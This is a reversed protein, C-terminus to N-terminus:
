AGQVTPADASRKVALGSSIMNGVVRRITDKEAVEALRCREWIEWNICERIVAEVRARLINPNLADLEWCRQGYREVFWQYRSDTRKAAFSPLAPDAIDEATLAIRRLTLQGGYRTLREPLDIDSMHMGSYDWDGVYLIILHRADHLSDEATAHVRTASGYGHVYCWGVGYAHLVPSLIGGITAKESWVQLRVAQHTWYDRRYSYEVAKLYEPIDTWQSDREVPRTEDVIWAWPIICQERAWVLQSSVMNTDNKSMSRLWGKVFLRYCAARVGAPQIEELIAQARDILLMTKKAKGRQGRGRQARGPNRLRKARSGRM